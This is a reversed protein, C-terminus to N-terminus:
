ERDDHPGPETGRGEGVWRGPDQSRRQAGLIPSPHAVSVCTCLRARPPIRVWVLQSLELPNLGRADVTGGGPCIILDCYLWSNAPSAM